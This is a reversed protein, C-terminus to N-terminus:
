TRIEPNHSRARHHAGHEAHVRSTIREVEGEARWEARNMSKRELFIFYESFHIFLETLYLICLTFCVFRLYVDWYIKVM